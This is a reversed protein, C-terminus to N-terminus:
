DYEEAELLRKKAMELLWLIDGGDAASSAFYFEGDNDWGIVIATELEGEASKIIDNPDVNFRTIGGIPIVNDTMDEAEAMKEFAELSKRITSIDKGEADGFLNNLAHCANEILEQPTSEPEYPQWYNQVFHKITMDNPVWIGCQNLRESRGEYFRFTENNATIGDNKYAELVDFSKPAELVAIVQNFMTNVDDIPERLICEDHWKRLKEALASNDSLPAPKSLEIIAENIANYQEINIANYQEIVSDDIQERDVIVSRLRNIINEM